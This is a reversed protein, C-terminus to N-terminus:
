LHALSCHEDVRDLAFYRIDGSVNEVLGQASIHSSGFVRACRERWISSTVAEWILRKVGSSVSNSVFNSSAFQFVEDWSFDRIQPFFHQLVYTSYACDWFLHKKSDIGDTCLVCSIELSIWWVVM